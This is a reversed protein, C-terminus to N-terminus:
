CRLNKYMVNDEIKNEEIREVEIFDNETMFSKIEASTPSNIYKSHVNEPLYYTNIIAKPEEMIVYRIKKILDSGCGKLVNLEFGQVDMCLLDIGDTINNEEAFDSLRIVEFMGSQIQTTEVDIRKFFSSAGDNDAIYSYFPLIENREGLGKPIFTINPNNELTQSCKEITFPNCEFSFVRADKFTNSLMLSEEGYRAGVEVVTQVDNGTIHKLFQPDWYYSM